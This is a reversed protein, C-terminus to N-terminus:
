GDPAPAPTQAERGHDEEGEDEEVVTELSTAVSAPTNRQGRFVRKPRLKPRNSPPADTPRNSPDDSSPPDDEDAKARQKGGRGQLRKPANKARTSPPGEAAAAGDAQQAAAAAAGEAKRKAAGKVRKPKLKPRASPVRLDGEDTSSSGGGAWFGDMGSGLLASSDEIVASPSQLPSWQPSPPAPPPVLHELHTPLIVGHKVALAALEEDTKATLVLANPISNRMCILMLDASAKAGSM